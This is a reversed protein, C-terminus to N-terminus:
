KIKLVPTLFASATPNLTLLRSKVSFLTTMLSTNARVTLPVCAAALTRFSVFFPLILTSGKVSSKFPKNAGSKTPPFDM